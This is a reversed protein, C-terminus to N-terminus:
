LRDTLVRCENEIIKKINDKEYSELCELISYRSRQGTFCDGHQYYFQKNLLKCVIHNDLIALKKLNECMCLHFFHLFCGDFCNEYLDYENNMYFIRFQCALCKRM